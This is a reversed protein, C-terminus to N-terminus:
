LSNSLPTLFCGAFVQVRLYLFNVKDIYDELDQATRRLVDAMSDDPRNGTRLGTPDESYHEGKEINDGSYQEKIKHMM